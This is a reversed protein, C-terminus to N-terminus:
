KCGEVLIDFLGARSHQKAESDPTIGNTKLANTTVPGISCILPKQAGKGLQFTKAQKCYSDVASPSAFVIANAGTKCYTKIPDDKVVAVSTTKYVQMADVIGRGEAELRSQLTPDNLDGTVVLIRQNEIGGDEILETALQNSTFENPILDVSLHLAEIEKATQEGICALKMPGLCRLDKYKEFFIQFFYKVGHASTFITWEYTAIEGLIDAATEKNYSLSTQVLPFFYVEAGEKELAEKLDSVGDLSQTLVIRKGVLQKRSSRSKKAAGNMVKGQEVECPVREETTCSKCKRKGCSKVGEDRNKM